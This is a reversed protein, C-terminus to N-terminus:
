IHILSLESLLENFRTLMEYSFANAKGDDLRIISVNNEQSLTATESTM